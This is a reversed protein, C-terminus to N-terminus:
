DSCSTVTCFAHYLGLRLGLPRGYGSDRRQLSSTTPKAGLSMTRHRWPSLPPPLQYEVYSMTTRRRQAHVVCSSSPVHLSWLRRCTRRDCRPLSGACNDRWHRGGVFRVVVPANGAVFRTIRCIRSEPAADPFTVVGHRRRWISPISRAADYAVPPDHCDTPSQRLWSQNIQENPLALGATTAGTAAAAAAAAADYLLNCSLPRADDSWQGGGVRHRWQELPQQQQEATENHM